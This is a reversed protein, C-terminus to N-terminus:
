LPMPAARPPASRPAATPSRLRARPEGSQLRTLQGLVFVTADAIEGFRGHRSVLRGLLQSMRKAAEENAQVLGRDRRTKGDPAQVGRGQQLLLWDSHSPRLDVSPGPLSEFTLFQICEVGRDALNDAVARWDIADFSPAPWAGLIEEERDPTVGLAWLIQYQGLPDSAGVSVPQSTFYAARYRCCLPLRNWAAASMADDLRLLDRDARESQRRSRVRKPRNLGSNTREM